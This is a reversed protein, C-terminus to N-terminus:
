LALLHSISREEIGLILRILAFSSSNSAKEFDAGMIRYVGEAKSLRTVYIEDASSAVVVRNFSAYIYELGKINTLFRESPLHGAGLNQVM